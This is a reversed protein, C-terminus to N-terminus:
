FKLQRALRKVIEAAKVEASDLVDLGLAEVYAAYPMGAVVVLRLGEANGKIIGRLFKRGEATGNVGRTGRAGSVPSFDSQKVVKGDWLVVYGISSTLNGTQDTYRKREPDRAYAIVQEGARTCVNVLARVIRQARADIARNLAAQGTPKIPM